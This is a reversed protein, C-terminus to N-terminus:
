QPQKRDTKAGPASQLTTKSKKIILANIKIHIQLKTSSTWTQPTKDTSRPGSLVSREREPIPVM